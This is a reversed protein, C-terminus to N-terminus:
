GRPARWADSAETGKSTHAEAPFAQAAGVLQSGSRM